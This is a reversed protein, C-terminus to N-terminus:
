PLPTSENLGHTLALANKAGPLCGYTHKCNRPRSAGLRRLIGWMLPILLMGAIAPLLRLGVATGNLMADPTLGLLHAFGALLLKGLPPHIDFYYHGDYYHAAFAKFYVEDFVVANPTFLTWLRTAFAAVILGILEPRWRKPNM